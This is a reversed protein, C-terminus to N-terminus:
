HFWSESPDSSFHMSLFFYMLSSPNDHKEKIMMLPLIAALKGDIPTGEGGGSFGGALLLLPLLEEVPTERQKTIILFAMMGNFDDVEHKIAGAMMLLPVIEGMGGNYQSYTLLPLLSQDSTGKDISDVMLVTLQERWEKDHNGSAKSLLLSSILPRISDNEVLDSDFDEPSISLSAMDKVVDEGDDLLLLQLLTRAKDDSSGELLMIPLVMEAVETENYKALMLLPLMTEAKDSDGGALVMLLLEETNEHSNILSYLLLPSAVDSNNKMMASFLLVDAAVPDSDSGLFSYVLFPNSTLIDSHAPNVSSLIMLLLLDEDLHRSGRAALVYLDTPNISTQEIHGSKIVPDEINNLYSDSELYSYELYYGYNELMMNLESMVLRLNARAEKLKHVLKDMTIDDSLKSLDVLCEGKQKSKGINAQSKITNFEDLRDIAQLYDHLSKEVNYCKESSKCDNDQLCSYGVPLNTSEIKKIDLKTKLGRSIQTLELLAADTIAESGCSGDSVLSLVLLAFIGFTM